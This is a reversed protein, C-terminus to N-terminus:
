LYSGKKIEPNNVKGVKTSDEFREKHSKYDSRRTHREHACETYKKWEGDILVYTPNARCFEEMEEQEESYYFSWSGNLRSM